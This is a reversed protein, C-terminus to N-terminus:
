FPKMHGKFGSGELSILAEKLSLKKKASNAILGSEFTKKNLYKSLHIYLLLTSHNIYLERLRHSSM